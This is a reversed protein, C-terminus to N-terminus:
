ITPIDNWHTTYRPSRHTHKAYLTEGGLEAATYIPSVCTARVHDLANMLSRRPASEVGFLTREPIADEPVIDSFHVGTKKYQMGSRYMGYLLRLAHQVIDLTDNTHHPLRIARQEHHQAGSYRSTRLLVRMERAVVGEARLLEAAIRAHRAVATRLVELDSTPNGFSESHLLSARPEPVEGIPFCPIGRLEYVTRLGAMSLRKRLWADDARALASATGIGAHILVPALRRGIGWVEEVPLGELKAAITKPDLLVMVGSGGRKPKAYHTAVKALTKTPGIGISVPIGTVRYVAHRVAHAADSSTTKYTDLVVFSEDVSYEEIVQVYARVVDSVRRSIDRYLDFNSSFVSVGHARVLERIRFYPEGMPIGLAKAEESRSVVCGDNSSLVVVPKHALDPRFLRECSVFFNNADILTIPNNSKNM